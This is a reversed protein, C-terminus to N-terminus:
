SIVEATVNEHLANIEIVPPNQLHKKVTCLNASNIVAAKYKEPFDRPLKINLSIKDILHTEMNFHMSQLIKIDASPINRKDCFSKIYFGVCTGISALFLDFPSSESDNGGDEVPQDTKILHGKYKANVRKNGEFFVELEM